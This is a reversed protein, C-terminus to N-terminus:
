VVEGEIAAARKVEAPVHMTFVAGGGPDNAASLQGRQADIL